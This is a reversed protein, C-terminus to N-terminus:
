SQPPTQQELPWLRSIDGQPLSISFVEYRHEGQSVPWALLMCDEQIAQLVLSRRVTSFADGPLSCLLSLRGSGLNMAYIGRVEGRQGVFYCKQGRRGVFFASELLASFGEDSLYGVSGEWGSSAYAYRWTTVLLGQPVEGVVKLDGLSDPMDFLTTRGGDELRSVTIRYSYGMAGETHFLRREEIYTAQEDEYFVHEEVAGAMLEAYRKELPVPTYRYQTTEVAAKDPLTEFPSDESQGVACLYAQGDQAVAQYLVTELSLRCVGDEGPEGWLTGSESDRQRQPLVQAEIALRYYVDGVEILSVDTLTYDTLSLGTGNYLMGSFLQQAYDLAAQAPQEGAATVPYMAYPPVPVGSVELAGNRQVVSVVTFLPADEFLREGTDQPLLYATGTATDAVLLGREQRELLVLGAGSLAAQAAADLVPRQGADLDDLLEYAGDRLGYWGPADGFPAAFVAEYAIEVVTQGELDVVGWLGDQQVVLGKTEATEYWLTLTPQVGSLASSEGEVTYAFLGVDMYGGIANYAFPVCMRGSELDLVGWLGSANCVAILENALLHPQQQEQEGASYGHGIALCDQATLPLIGGDSVMWLRQMGAGDTTVVLGSAVELFFVSRYEAALLQVGEMSYLGERGGTGTYRYGYHCREFSGEVPAFLPGATRSFLTSGQQNYVPFVGSFLMRQASPTRAAPLFFGYSQVLAETEQLATDPTLISLVGSQEDWSIVCCFALSAGEIPVLFDEAQLIPRHALPTLMPEETEDLLWMKGDELVAASCGIQTCFVQLAPTQGYEDHSLQVGPVLKAMQQASLYLVDGEHYLLREPAEVTQGDVLVAPTLYGSQERGSQMWPVLLFLLAAAVLAGTLLILMWSPLRQVGREKQFNANQNVPPGM